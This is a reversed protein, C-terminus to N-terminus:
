ARRPATVLFIKARFNAFLIDAGHKERRRQKVLQGGFHRVSKRCDAGHHEAALRTVRFRDGPNEPVFRRLMQDITVTGGLVGRKGGAIFHPRHGVVGGGHWNAPWIWNATNCEPHAISAWAM